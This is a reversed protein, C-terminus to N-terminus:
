REIEPERNQEPEPAGELGLSERVFGEGRQSYEHVAQWEQETLDPLVHWEPPNIKALEEDFYVARRMLESVATELEVMGDELAPKIKEKCSVAAHWGAELMERDPKEPMRMSLVNWPDERLAAVTMLPRDDEAM